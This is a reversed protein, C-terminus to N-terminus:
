QVIFQTFFLNDVLPEPPNRQDDKKQRKAWLENALEMVQTKLVYRGQVSTLEHFQKKGMLTLFQDTILPRIEEIEAKKSGDTIELAFGVTAYHLKGNLQTSTGDAPKPQEPASAINITTPDFMVTGHATEAVPKANKMQEIRARESEETIKPRQFLLRTYVLVGVAALIAVTNVLTILFPLQSPKPGTNEGAGSGEAEKKKESV